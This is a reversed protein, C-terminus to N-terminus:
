RCYPSRRTKADFHFHDEHAADAEPGLVTTFPGCASRWLAKLVPGDEADRWGERVAVIRGDSLRFAAVDLANARAHESLKGRLGGGIRRCAYGSVQEIRAIEAGAAARAAAQGAGDLWDALARAMGCGMVAPPSLTVGAAVAIRAPDEAGCAAAQAAPDAAADADQTLAAPRPAAGAIPQRIPELALGQLRPDGCPAAAGEVELTAIAPQAAAAPAAPTEASAAQPRPAPAPARTPGPAGPEAAGLAATVQAAADQPAADQPAADQTAADQPAADQPAAD